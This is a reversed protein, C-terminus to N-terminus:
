VAGKQESNTRFVAAEIDARTPQHGQRHAQRVVYEYKAAGQGPGYIQEAAEVLRQLFQRLREDQIQQIYLRVLSCLFGVILTVVGPLVVNTLSFSLAELM